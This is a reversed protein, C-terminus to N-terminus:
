RGAGGRGPRALRGRGSSFVRDAGEPDELSFAFRDGDEALEVRLRVEQGPLLLERFKLAELTEPHPAAGLLEELAGMALHVQVVGAVVPHGPFHGELFALDHPIRLRAELRRRERRAALREPDRPAPGAEFLAGLAHAPIKGQADRPLADVVRWLRPLLVRDFDPALHECLAKTLARRGGAALVERGAAGPVVVAGVRTEPARAEPWPEEPLPENAAADAGPGLALLAAEAVAPHECLRAEMAPLSLRKEGVKVVRDARGLLRFGGGDDFAVRDDLAFRARGGPRPEGASVFPSTVELRGEAPEAALEVGPLPRWPEDGRGPRRVAVGGTETSGYVEWPPAGLNRAVRVALEAGLPGGSSFVARCRRARRRLEENEVLHRLAVPTAALAFSADDGTHPALEEAHLLPSRLFPRGACLPWLVRFLLGYLHQPTVTALMRTDTDLGRGLVEELVAVEDELHRVAKPVPREAGTTGSTFLEALPAERDLVVPARAARPAELPHWCPRGELAEPRSAGDMLAGAVEPAVRRLARRQRSPPLVACAGAQGAALLGVSFAYADDCHLLLRRGTLPELLAALSAVDEELDRRSRQGERGFAVVGEVARPASLLRSLSIV